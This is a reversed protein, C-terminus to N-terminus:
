IALDELAIGADLESVVWLPKRGRGSWTQAQDKPNRYKAPAPARTGTGGKNGKSQHHRGVQLADVFREVPVGILELQEKTTTVIEALAEDIERTIQVVLEKRQRELDALLEVRSKVPPATEKNAM